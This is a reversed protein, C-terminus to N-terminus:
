DARALTDACYQRLREVARDPPLVQRTDGTGILVGLQELKGLAEQVQFQCDEGTLQRLIREIECALSQSTWGEQARYWLLYYALIAEKTEEDEAEDILRCFVGMNNDLNQYYLQQTLSYLYQAKTRRYGFFSQWGYSFAGLAVMLWKVKGMFITTLAVRVLGYIGTISSGSIKATDIWRMRPRTGPLLMELDLKPIERFLKLYISETDIEEGLLKSPRLKVGLVLRQYV